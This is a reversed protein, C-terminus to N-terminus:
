RRPAQRGTGVRWVALGILLAFAPWVFLHHLRLAGHGLLVGKTMVLGSAVTPVSGLAGAIMMWYGTAHLDRALPRTGLAFAAGDLAGSALALALPFHGTAGHVRAWLASDM